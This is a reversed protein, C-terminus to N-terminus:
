RDREHRLHRLQFARDGRRLVRPFCCWGITDGRAILVRKQRQQLAVGRLEQLQKMRELRLACCRTEHCEGDAIADQAASLPSSLVGREEPLAVFFERRVQPV